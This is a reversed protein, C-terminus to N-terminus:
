RVEVGAREWAARAAVLHAEKVLVLDTDYTSLAFIPVGAAALPAALGALVGVEDFPVPGELEFARWGIEAREVSPPLADEDCVVSLERPTRTISWVAAEAHMVWAPLPADPPMRCVALRGPLLALARPRASM